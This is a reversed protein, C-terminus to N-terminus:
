AERIVSFGDSSGTSVDYTSLEHHICIGRCHLCMYQSRWERKCCGHRRESPASHSCHRCLDTLIDLGEGLLPHQMPWSSQLWLCCSRWRESPASHSFWWCVGAHVDPREGLFSHQVPWGQLHWLCCGRWRQSPPSHSIWWCLDTHVDPEGGLFSHHM